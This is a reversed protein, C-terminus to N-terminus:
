ARITGWLRHCVDAPQDLITQELTAVEIPGVKHQTPSQPQWTWLPLLLLHVVWVGVERRVLRMDAVKERIGTAGEADPVAQAGVPIRVHVYVQLVVAVEVRHGVTEADACLDDVAATEFDNISQRNFHPLSLHRDNLSGQHFTYDTITLKVM